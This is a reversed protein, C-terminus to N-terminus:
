DKNIFLIQPYVFYWLKGKQPVTGNICGTEHIHVCLNYAGSLM